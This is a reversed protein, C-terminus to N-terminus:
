KQGKSELLDDQYLKSNNRGHNKSYYMATDAHKMLTEDDLGHEPYIAIGISTSVDLNQGNLAFNQSVKQRIKQAVFLADQVDAIIPLLAVFEDGGIRAATDSERLGSKIRRAVEILVLDGIDHGFNDNILKFKDIDIFMVALKTSNRKANLLAQQLRELFLNRNPIKTLLDHQLGYTMSAENAKRNTIDQNAIVLEAARKEKEQKAIVLEAARKM